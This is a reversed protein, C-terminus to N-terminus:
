LRWDDMWDACISNIGDFLGVVLYFPFAIILVPRRLWKHKMAAYWHESFSKKHNNM